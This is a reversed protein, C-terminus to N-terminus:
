VEFYEIESSKMQNEKFDYIIYFKVINNKYEYGTKYISINKGKHKNLVINTYNNIQNQSLNKKNSLQKKLEKLDDNIFSTIKVVSDNEVIATYINDTRIGYPAFTFSINRKNESEFIEYDEIDFDSNLNEKIYNITFDKPNIEALSNQDLQIDYEKLKNKSSISQYSNSYTANNLTIKISTDGFAYANKLRSDAYNYSNAHDIAGQVSKGLKLGEILKEMYYPTTAVAIETTWGISSKAGLDTARQALPRDSSHPNEATLCGGFIILRTNTLNVDELGVLYQNDTTTGSYKYYVGNNGLNMMTHNGHGSLLVVNSQLGNRISSASPVYTYSANYGLSSMVEKFHTAINADTPDNYAVSYATPIASQPTYNIVFAPWTTNNLSSDGSVITNYDNYSENTYRVMFGNKSISGNYWGKVTDTIDLSFIKNGNYDSPNYNSYLLTTRLNQITAYNISSSTWYDEVRYINIPGWTSTGLYYQFQFQAYNIVGNITPFNKWNIYARSGGERNGIFLRDSNLHDGSHDGPHVYTDLINERIKENYVNLYSTYAVPYVREEDNLWEEDLIYQITYGENNRKIKIETNDNGNNKNSSDKLYPIQLILKNESKEDEYFYILGHNDQSYNLDTKINFEIINTKPKENYVLKTLINNSDIQFNLDSNKQINKYQLSSKVKSLNENNTIEKNIEVEQKQSDKLGLEFYHKEKLNIKFLKSNDSTKNFKINFFPNDKLKLSNDKEEVLTNDIEEWTGDTKQYHIANNYNYTTVTGDSNLFYKTNEDRLDTLEQLVNKNNNINKREAYAFTINSIVLAMVLITCLIINTKKKM